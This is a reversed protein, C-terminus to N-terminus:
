YENYLATIEQDSLARNYIRIDDIMGIFGGTWPSLYRTGIYLPAISQKFASVSNTKTDTLVGDTYFKLQGSAYVVTVMHWSNKGLSDSAQVMNYTNTSSSNLEFGPTGNPSVLQLSYNSYTNTSHNAAKCLIHPGTGPGSPTYNLGPPISVWANFTALSTLQLSSSNPIVIYNSTGNFSYASNSSGFRDMTPTAGNVTGNNGNGSEDNANGNFPYYAILGNTPVNNIHGNVILNNQVNLVGAVEITDTNANLLGKQNLNQDVGLINFTSSSISSLARVYFNTSDTTIRMYDKEGGKSLNRGGVAFGGRSGKTQTDNIYIRTSDPTITFYENFMASKSPNRGGVAFGSRAGKVSSSDIYFRISDPTVRMIEEVTTGKTTNRGGVTFGGRSGKTGESVILEAGDEYVAFVVNGNKDRVEFLATDSPISYTGAIELKSQIIGSFAKNGAITQNGSLLVAYNSLSDYIIPKNTLNNYNGNFGYANVTDRLHPKNSLSNYNGNFLIPTDILNHYNGSFGNGAKQAFLAYPVSVLQVPDGAATYSTGGTPDVEIKLFYTGTAWDISAFTNIIPTGSGINLNVIGYQNTQVAHSEVYSTVGLINDKIISLRLGVNKSVLLNGANDRIVAQYKFAQPAQANVPSLITIGTLM